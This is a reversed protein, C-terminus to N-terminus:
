LIGAPQKFIILGKLEYVHWTKCLKDGCEDVKIGCEEEVERVAADRTREQLDLKGKPLDWKQKRYIFLIENAENFVIGGAAKIVMFKRRMERFYKKPDSSILVYTQATEKKVKKYFEKFDFSKIDLQKHRSLGAPLFEAIILVTDNVFITYSQMM